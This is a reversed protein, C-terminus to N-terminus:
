HRSEADISARPRALSDRGRGAAPCLARTRAARRAFFVLGRPVFFILKILWAGRPFFFSLRSSDEGSKNQGFSGLWTLRPPLGTRGAANWIPNNEAPAM